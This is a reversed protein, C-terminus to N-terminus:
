QNPKHFGRVNTAIRKHWQANTALAVIAKRGEYGAMTLSAIKDQKFESAYKRKRHAMIVEEENLATPVYNSM